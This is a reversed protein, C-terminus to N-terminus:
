RNGPARKGCTPSVAHKAGVDGRDPALRAFGRHSGSAGEHRNGDPADFARNHERRTSVSECCSGCRYPRCPYCVRNSNESAAQRAAEVLLSSTAFIVEVNANALGEAASGLLATTAAWRDVIELNKGEVWGLEELGKAFAHFLESRAPGAGFGLYGIRRIQQAYLHTASPFAASAIGVVLLSRRRM